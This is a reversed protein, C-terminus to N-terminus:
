NSSADEESPPGPKLRFEQRKPDHWGITRPRTIMAWLPARIFTDKLDPVSLPALPSLYPTGFSRLSALHISVGILGVMIGFGGSFGALVTFIARLIGGSDTQAPVVFSAIATLAVVIVMPAGILGASVASEGIVLAGVISVAQGVPRPLRVGAERLIEFIVGMGLAEVLVPFPVGEQAASMSFLLATPILEQHYTTLAVYTAPALISLMYALYRFMRIISAFYPRSYYDESSQFSEIFVMPVTLVFPTGDVLIAARGELIKAAALDPKETNAITSFISFPADEIYQEVIGSELISDTKIDKLRRKIEEILLPNAIDKIYAICVTTKTREGIKMSEFVLDSSKIKRRILTTNTLLNEIFGERPGRVVSETKPDTISRSKWDSTMIVLAEPSGDVLLITEGSLYGEVIDQILTRKKIEAVSLMTMTIMEIVSHNSAPNSNPVSEFLLPKLISENIMTQDTMGNLYVLAANTQRHEGFTFKRIVLDFNNGIFGNLIELNTTLNQTLSTPTKEDQSPAQNKQNTAYYQNVLKLYKLKSTLYRLM